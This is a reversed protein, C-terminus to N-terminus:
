EAIVRGTRNNIKVVKMRAVDIKYGVESKEGLVRLKSVIKAASKSLKEVDKLSLKEYDQGLKRWMAKLEGKCKSFKENKSSTKLLYCLELGEILLLHLERKKYELEEREERKEFLSVVNNKTKGVSAKVKKVTSSKHCSMKHCNM